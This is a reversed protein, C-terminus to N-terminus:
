LSVKMAIIKCKHDTEQIGFESPKTRQVLICISPTKALICDLVTLESKVESSEEHPRSPM